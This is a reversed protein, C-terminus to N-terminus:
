QFFLIRNFVPPHFEQDGSSPGAQHSACTHTAAQVHSITTTASVPLIKMLGSPSSKENAKCASYRPTHPLLVIMVRNVQLIGFREPSHLHPHYQLVLIVTDDLHLMDNLAGPPHYNLHVSQSTWLSQQFFPVLHDRSSLSSQQGKCLIGGAITPLPHDHHKQRILITTITSPSVQFGQLILSM